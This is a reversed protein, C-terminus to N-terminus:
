HYSNLKFFAKNWTQNMAEVWWPKLNGVFLVNETDQESVVVKGIGPEYEISQNVDHENHIHENDWHGPYLSPRFITVSRLLMTM